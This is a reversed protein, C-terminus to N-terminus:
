KGGNGHAANLSDAAAQAAEETDYSKVVVAGDRWVAYKGDRIWESVTYRGTQAPETAPESRKWELARGCECFGEDQNKAVRECKPCHRMFTGTIKEIQDPEVTVFGDTTSGMDGMDLHVGHKDIDFICGYAGQLYGHRVLRVFTGTEFSPQLLMALEVLRTNDQETAAPPTDIAQLTDKIGAVYGMLESHEYSLIREEWDLKDIAKELQAILNLASKIQNM